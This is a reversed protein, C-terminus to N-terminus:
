KFTGVYVLDGDIKSAQRKIDHIAHLRVDQITTLIFSAPVNSSKGKADKVKKTGNVVGYFKGM